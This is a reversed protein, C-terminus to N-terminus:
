IGLSLGHVFLCENDITGNYQVYHSIPCWMQGSCGPYDACGTQLDKEPRRTAPFSRSVVPISLQQMKAAQCLHEHRHRGAIQRGGVWGVWRVWRLDNAGWCEPVRWFFLEDVELSGNDPHM